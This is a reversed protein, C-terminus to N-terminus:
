NSVCSLVLLGSSPLSTCTDYNPCGELEDLGIIQYQKIDPNEKRCQQIFTARFPANVEVNTVLVYVDPCRKKILTRHLDCTRSKKCTHVEQLAERSKIQGGIRGVVKHKFQFIILKEPQILEGLIPSTTETHWEGFFTDVEGDAGVGGLLFGKHRSGLLLGCLETFKEPGLNDFAYIFAPKAM